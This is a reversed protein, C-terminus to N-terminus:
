ADPRTSAEDLVALGSPATVEGLWEDAGGVNGWTVEPSRDGAHGPSRYYSLLSTEADDSLGEKPAPPADAVQEKSYAVRLADGGEEVAAGLLPVLQGDLGGDGRLRVWEPRAAGADYLVEAVEGLREGESGVVDRGRWTTFEDITLAMQM